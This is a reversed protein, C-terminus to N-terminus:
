PTIRVMRYRVPTTRDVAYQVPYNMPDLGQETRYVWSHTSSGELADSTWYNFWTEVPHRSDFMDGDEAQLMELLKWEARSPIANPVFDYQALLPTNAMTASAPFTVGQPWPQTTTFGDPATARNYYNMFAAHMMASNMGNPTRIGFPRYNNAAAQHNTALAVGNEFGSTQNADISEGDFGWPMGDRDIRDFYITLPLSRGLVETVYRAIEPSVDEAGIRKVIPAYQTITIWSDPFIYDNNNYFRFVIRRMYGENDGSGDDPGMPEVYLRFQANNDSTLTFHKDVDGNTAPVATWQVSSGSGFIGWLFQGGNVNAQSAGNQYAVHWNSENGSVMLEDVFIMEGGANLIFDSEALLTQNGLDTNVRWTVEGPNPQLNGDRDIQGGETVANGSLVLTYEYCSNRMVDFNRYIDSGLFVRFAVDGGMIVSGTGNVKRYQARVELYSCARSATEIDSVSTSAAHAPRKIKEGARDESVDAGFGEGHFNEYMFLPFVNSKTFDLGGESYHEGMVHDDINVASMGNGVIPGWGLNAATILEGDAVVAGDLPERMGDPRTVDNPKGVYCWTPVNHLSISLPVIIVDDNLGSGDIQVTIMAATRVLEAKLSIGGDHGHDGDVPEAVAFMMRRDGVLGPQGSQDKLSLLADVSALEDGSLRRGYNGVLYFTSSERGGWDTLWREAFHVRYTGDGNDIFAVDDTDPDGFFTGVTFYECVYIEGDNTMVVNLDNLVDFDAAGARTNITKPAPAPLSINLTVSGDAPLAPSDAPYDRCGALLVCGALTLFGTHYLYRKMDM